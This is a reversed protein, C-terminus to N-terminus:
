PSPSHTIRRQVFAWTPMGYVVVTSDHKLKENLVRLNGNVFSEEFSTIIFINPKDAKLQEAATTKKGNVLMTKTNLLAVTFKQLANQSFYTKSENM